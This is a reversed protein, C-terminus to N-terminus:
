YLVPKVLIVKEVCDIETQIKDMQSQITAIQASQAADVKKDAYEEKALCDIKNDLNISNRDIKTNLNKMQEILCKIDESQNTNQVLLSDIIKQQKINISEEVIIKKELRVIESILTEVRSDEMKKAELCILRKLIVDVRADEFVLSKIENDIRKIEQEIEYRTCISALKAIIAEIRTDKFEKCSLMKLEKQLHEVDTEIADIHIDLKGISKEVIEINKKVDRIEMQMCSTQATVHDLEKAQSLLARGTKESMTKLECELHNTDNNLKVISQELSRIDDTNKEDYAILGNVENELKNIQCSFDRNKNVEIADIFCQDLSSAIQVIKETQSMTFVADKPVCKIINECQSQYNKRFDVSSLM